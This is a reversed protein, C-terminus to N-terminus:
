YKKKKIKIEKEKYLQSVCMQLPTFDKLPFYDLLQYTNSGRYRSIIRLAISPWRRNPMVACVPIEIEVDKRM